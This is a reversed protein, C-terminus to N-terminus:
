NGRFYRHPVFPMTTVTAALRKKRVECELQTDLAAHAADVYATAIPKGLTPSFGGSTVVGVKADGAFVEAGERAPMRGEITLGVWKRATGEVIERNIRDAGPYGGETRRRKNIGFILGAEIPSTEPSLDHGYLPLGAELRLSDRAGLGIPKVEPEGSLLTAIEEAAEGPISIEFGDEGTYGARAIAVGHGAIEFHGFRMFTLDTLAYEGTAHRALADVAKPGQLALLARDDLHNLTIEDPLHERLHGIDDWKTAGNVVLYLANPWRSVMLDDLVGGNEDLLLSYRQRGLKLTSLDIPLVAEVATDLDPGSLLLQGMHSVDFLGANTRTWEHEAVIGEYQIPMEYGAFPVMRAGRARHWADLPLKGLPLDDESQDDSM